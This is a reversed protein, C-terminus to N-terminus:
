DPVVFAELSAHVADSDVAIAKQKAKTLLASFRKQANQETPFANLEKAEETWKLGNGEFGAYISLSVPSEKDEPNREIRLGFGLEVSLWNGKKAEDDGPGIACHAYFYVTGARVFQGYLGPLEGEEDGDVSRDAALAKALAKLDYVPYPRFKRSSSHRLLLPNANKLWEGLVEANGYLKGVIEPVKLVANRSYLKGLGTKHPFGLAQALFFAVEKREDVLDITEYKTVGIDKLYDSLMKSFLGDSLGAHVDRYRYSGAADRGATAMAEQDARKPSYRSVHAFRARGKLSAILKLYDELQAENAPNNVDDEKVEVILIPEGGDLLALDAHRRNGKQGDFRWEREIQYQGATLAKRQERSLEFMKAFDAPEKFALERLLERFYTGSYQTSLLSRIGYFFGTM